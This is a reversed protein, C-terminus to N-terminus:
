VTFVIVSYYTSDIYKSDGQISLVECNKVKIIMKFFFFMSIESKEINELIDNSLKKM